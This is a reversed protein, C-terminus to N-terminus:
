LSSQTTTSLSPRRPASRATPLPRGIQPVVPNVKKPLADQYVSGPGSKNTVTIPGEGSVELYPEQNTQTDFNQSLRSAKKAADVAWQLQFRNKLVFFNITALICGIIALTCGPGLDLESFTQPRSETAPNPRNSNMTNNWDIWTAWAIMSFFAALLDFFAGKGWLISRGAFSRWSTFFLSTFSTFIALILFAQVVASKDCLNESSWSTDKGTLKDSLTCHGQRCEGLVSFIAVKNESTMDACAQWLGITIEGFANSQKVQVTGNSWDPVICAVLFFITSLAGFLHPTITM